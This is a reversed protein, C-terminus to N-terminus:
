YWNTMTTKEVQDENKQNKNKKRLRKTYNKNTKLKMTWDLNIAYKKLKTRM